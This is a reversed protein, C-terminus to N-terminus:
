HYNEQRLKGLNVAVDPLTKVGLYSPVYRVKKKQINKLGCEQSIHMVCVLTSLFDVATWPAAKWPALWLKVTQERCCLVFMCCLLCPFLQMRDM